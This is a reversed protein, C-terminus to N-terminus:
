LRKDIGDGGSRWLERDINALPEIEAGTLERGSEQFASLTEVPAVM